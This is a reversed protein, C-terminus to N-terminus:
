RDEAFRTPVDETPSFKAHSVPEVHPPSIPSCPLPPQLVQKAPRGLARYLRFQARNADGIAGYYDAYAASLAQIAAVVEQPRVVLLVVDGGLRKTQSLGEFNNQVSDLAEKLGKESEAVREAASIAQAHAQVVEAAVRDQLRFLALISQQNDARREAVRAKNGFGLNQLEWLVQVDFDARAAFNSLSTNRGGGFV